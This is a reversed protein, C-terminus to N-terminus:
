VQTKRFREEGGGEEWQVCQYGCLHPATSLCNCTSLLSSVPPHHAPDHIVWRPKSPIGTTVPTMNSLSLVMDMVTLRFFIILKGPFYSRLISSEKLPSYFLQMHKLSKKQPSKLNLVMEFIEPIPKM